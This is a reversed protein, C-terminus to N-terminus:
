KNSVASADNLAEMQTNVHVRLSQAVTLAGRLSCWVELAVGRRWGAEGGEGGEEAVKWEGPLHIICVEGVRGRGVGGCVCVLVGM